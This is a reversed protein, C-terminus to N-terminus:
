MPQERRVRRMAGGVGQWEEVVNRPLLTRLSKKSKRGNMGKIEFMSIPLRLFIQRPNKQRRERWGPHKPIRQSSITVIVTSQDRPDVQVKFGQPHAKMASIIDHNAHDLRDRWGYSLPQWPKTEAIARRRRAAKAFASKLSM